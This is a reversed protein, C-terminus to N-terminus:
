QQAVTPLFAFPVGNSQQDADQLSYRDFLRRYLAREIKLTYGSVHLARLVETNYATERPVLLCATTDPSFGVLNHGNPGALTEKRMPITGAQIQYEFDTKWADAVIITPQNGCEAALRIFYERKYFPKQRIAHAFAGDALFPSTLRRDHFIDVTVIGEIVTCLCIAIVARQSWDLALILLFPLAVLVYAPKTAYRFFVAFFILPLVVACISVFSWPLPRQAERKIKAVGRALAAVLLVFVIPGFSQFCLKYGGVLLAQHLSMGAEYPKRFGSILVPTWVAAMALLITAAVVAFRKWNADTLFLYIPFVAGAFVIEPRCGTAVAFCVGSICLRLLSARNAGSGLLLRISLLIFLLAFLFEEGDIANAFYQPSLGLCATAVGALWAKTRLFLLLEYFVILSLLAVLGQMFLYVKADFPQHLLARLAWGVAGFIYFETTPHGPPRSVEVRHDDVLSQATQVIGNGDLSGIGHNIQAGILAVYAALLVGLTWHRTLGAVNTM